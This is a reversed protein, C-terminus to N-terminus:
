HENLWMREVYMNGSYSVDSVLKRIAIVGKLSRPHETITRHPGSNGSKVIYEKTKTDYGTIYGVHHPWVVVVVGTNFEGPRAPTGRHAWEEAMNYKDDGGFWQRMQWGCWATPRGDRWRHFEHKRIHHSHHTGAHHGHHRKNTENGYAGTVWTLTLLVLLVLKKM